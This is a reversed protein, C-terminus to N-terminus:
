IINGRTKKNYAQEELLSFADNKITGKRFLACSAMSTNPRMTRELQVWSAREPYFPRDM